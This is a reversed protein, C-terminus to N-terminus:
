DYERQLQRRRHYASAKEIQPQRPSSKALEFRVKPQYPKLSNSRNENRNVRRRELSEDRSPRSPKKEPMRSRRTESVRQKRPSTDYKRPSRDPSSQPSQSRRPTLRKRRPSTHHYRSSRPSQAKKPSRSQPKMTPLEARKKKRKEIRLRVLREKTEKRRKLFAEQERKAKEKEEQEQCKLKEQHKVRIEQSTQIKACSPIKIKLENKFVDRGPKEVAPKEDQNIRLQTVLEEARNNESTDSELCCALTPLLKIFSSPSLVSQGTQSLLIKARNQKFIDPIFEYDKLFKVWAALDMQKQGSTIDAFLSQSDPQINKAYQKFIKLLQPRFPKLHVGIEKKLESDDAVPEDAVRSSPLVRKKYYSQLKLDRNEIHRTNVTAKQYSNEEQISEIEAKMRPSLRKPDTTLKPLITRTPASIHLRTFLPTLVSDKADTLKEVIRETLFENDIDIIDLLVTLMSTRVGVQQKKKKEETLRTLYSASLESVYDHMAPLQQYRAVLIQVTFAAISGFNPDDIALEAFVELLQIAQPFSLSPHKALVCFLQFESMSCGKASISRIMPDLLINSPLEKINVLMARMNAMSYDRLLDHGRGEIVVFVLSKFIKDAWQHIGDIALLSSKILVQLVRYLCGISTVQITMHSDRFGKKVVAFLTNTSATHRFVQRPFLTWLDAILAYAAARTYVPHSPSTMRSTIEVILNRVSDLFEPDKTKLPQLGLLSDHVFEIYDVESGVNAKLMPGLAEDLKKEAIKLFFAVVMPRVQPFQFSSKILLAIGSSGISPDLANRSFWMWGCNRVNPNDSELCLMSLVELTFMCVSRSQSILGASLAKLHTDLETSCQATSAVITAKQKLLTQLFQIVSSYSGEIGHILIQALYRAETSLLAEGQEKRISFHKMMAQIVIERVTTEERHNATFHSHAKHILQTCQDTDIPSLNLMHPSGLWKVSGGAIILTKSRESLTINM